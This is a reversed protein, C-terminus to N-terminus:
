EVNNSVYEDFYDEEGPFQELFLVRVDDIVYETDHVLLGLYNEMEGQNQLLIM